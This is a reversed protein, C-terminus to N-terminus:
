VLKTRRRKASISMRHSTEDSIPKAQKGERLAAKTKDSMKKGTNAQKLAQLHEKSPKWDGRSATRKAITEPSLKRGTMARSRRQLEEEPINANYNRIAERAKPSMPRGQGAARIKEIAEPTHKKGLRSEAAPCLNYLNVSVKLTDMWLQERSTLDALTEVEEVLSFEFAEEGYHNWSEQLPRNVHRNKRLDLLHKGFRRKLDVAQGVYAKNAEFNFICYIGSTM